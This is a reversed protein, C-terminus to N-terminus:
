FILYDCPQGEVRELWLLTAVENYAERWNDGYQERYKDSVFQQMEATSHKFPLLLDVSRKEGIGDIGPINDTSDGWLMQRFFNFNAEELTVEYRRDKVWDYHKGPIMDLDKDYSVIITSKDPKAWQASALADDAERGNVVIAGWRQQMYDRIESYYKPKGTTRNGKYPLITAIQERFNGTGTIYLQYNNHHGLRDLIGTITSRVNTLAHGLYDIRGLEEKLAEPNGGLEPQESILQRKVQGDAAFGPRYVLLDGDILLTHVKRTM